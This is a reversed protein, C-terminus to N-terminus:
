IYSRTPSKLSISLGDSAMARLLVLTDEPLDGVEWDWVLCFSKLQALGHQKANWRSALAAQVKALQRCEVRKSSHRPHFFSLHQLQPLVTIDDFYSFFAALFIKHPNGIELEVLGPMSLFVEVDLATYPDTRITFRRLPPSSRTLFELFETQYFHQHKCDLIRLIELAPLTLFQFIDTSCWRDKFLTLSKLSPHILIEVFDTDIGGTAFCM